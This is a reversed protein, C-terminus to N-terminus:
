ELHIISEASTHQPQVIFNRYIRSDIHIKSKLEAHEGRTLTLTYYCKGWMQSPPRQDLYTVKDSKICFFTKVKLTKDQLAVTTATGAISGFLIIHRAYAKLKNFFRSIM